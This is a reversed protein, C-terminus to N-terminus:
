FLMLAIIKRHYISTGNIEWTEKQNGVVLCCSMCVSLSHPNPFFSTITVSASAQLIQLAAKATKPQQHKGNPKSDIYFYFLLLLPLVSPPPPSLPDVM